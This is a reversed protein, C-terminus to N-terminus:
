KLFNKCKTIIEIIENKTNNYASTFASVTEEIKSSESKIELGVSEIEQNALVIDDNLTKIEILKSAIAAKLDAIRKEKSGVKQSIINANNETFETFHQDLLKLYETSSSDMVGMNLGGTQLTNFVMKYIISEDTISSGLTAKNQKLAKYFEFFDPGPLNAKDLLDVFYNIAKQEKEKSVTGYPAVAPQSAVYTQAKVPQQNVVQKSEIQNQIETPKEDETIFGNNTLFKKLSM